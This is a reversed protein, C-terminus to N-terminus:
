FIKGVIEITEDSIFRNKIKKINLNIIKTKPLPIIM